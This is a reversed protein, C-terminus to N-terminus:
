TYRRRPGPIPAMPFEPLPTEDYKGKLAYAVREAVNAGYHQQWHAIQRRVYSSGRSRGLVKLQDECVYILNPVIDPM